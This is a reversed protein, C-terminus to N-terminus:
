GLIIDAYEPPCYNRKKNNDRHTVNNKLEQKPARPASPPAHRASTLPARPASTDLLIFINPKYPTREVAIVGLAEMEKVVDIVKRRSMGTGRAITDYSPRCESSDVNIYRCLAVYVALGYPGLKAGYKDYFDNYIKLYNPGRNDRVIIQDTNRSM